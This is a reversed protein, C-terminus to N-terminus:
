YVVKETRNIMGAEKTLTQNYFKSNKYEIWIIYNRKGPMLFVFNYNQNLYYLTVRLSHCGNRLGQVIIGEVM